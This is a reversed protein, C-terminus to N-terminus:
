SLLFRLASFIYGYRQLMHSIATVGHHIKFANSYLSERLWKMRRM